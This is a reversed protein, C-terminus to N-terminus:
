RTYHSRLNKATGAMMNELKTGMTWYIVHSLLGVQTEWIEYRCQAVGDNDELVTIQQVKESELMALPVGKPLGQWCLKMQAPDNMSIRILMPKPSESLDM